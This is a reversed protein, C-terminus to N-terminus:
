QIRRLARFTEPLRQLSFGFVCKMNPLTEGLIMGVIHYTYFLTCGSLGCIVIHRMRMAHQIGLAVFVGEYYTISIAKGRWCHNCLRAETARLVYM